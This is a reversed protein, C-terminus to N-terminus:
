KNVEDMINKNKQLKLVYNNVILKAKKELKKQEIQEDTLVEIGKNKVKFIIDDFMSYYNIKNQIVRLHQWGKKPINPILLVEVAYIKNDKIAIADPAKGNMNVVKFGKYRLEEVTKAILDQHQKSGYNVM